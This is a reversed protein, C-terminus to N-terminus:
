MGGILPVHQLRAPLLSRQFGIDREENFRRWLVIGALEARPRHSRMMKEIRKVTAGSDMFDDVIIYRNINHVEGEVVINSHTGKLEGPKRVFLPYTGTKYALIPGFLAGSQGSYVVADFDIRRARLRRLMLTTREKVTAPDLGSHLYASGIAM